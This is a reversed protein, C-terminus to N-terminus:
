TSKLRSTAMRTSPKWASTLPLKWPFHPPKWPLHPHKWPLLLNWPLHPAELPTLPELPPSPSGPSATPVLLTPCVEDEGQQARRDVGM